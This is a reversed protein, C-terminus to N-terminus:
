YSYFLQFMQGISMTDSISLLPCFFGFCYLLFELNGGEAVSRMLAAQTCNASGLAVSSTYTNKFQYAKAHLPRRSELYRPHVSPITNTTVSLSTDAGAKPLDLIIEKAGVGETLDRLAQADLFPTVVRLEDASQVKEILQDLLPRQLSSIMTINSPSHTTPPKTYHWVYDLCSPVVASVTDYIQQLAQTHSPETSVLRATIETQDNYGAMTLNHSGIHATIREHKQLWLLKAHWRHHSARATSLDCCCRKGNKRLRSHRRSDQLHTSYRTSAYVTLPALGDRLRGAVAKDHVGADAGASAHAATEDDRRRSLV